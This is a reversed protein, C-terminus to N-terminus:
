LPIEAKAYAARVEADLQELSRGGLLVDLHRTCLDDASEVAFGQPLEPKTPPTLNSPYRIVGNGLDQVGPQKKFADIEAQYKTVAAEYQPGIVAWTKRDEHIADFYRKFRTAKGDGDFHMFYFVLAHSSFYRNALDRMLTTQSGPMQQAISKKASPTTISNTFAWLQSAGIWNTQVTHTVLNGHRHEKGARRRMQKFAEVANSVMYRGSNYPLHATYEATGEAMWIPMFRLYEQMMQHTVEHTITDNNIAGSLYYTNGRSAVGIEEFPIRFIYDQLSYYAASWPPAGATLYDQRTRFLEAHFYPGNQPWPTIGWPLKSVLEHTSEFARCVETMAATGLKVPSKFEFHQSRYICPTTNEQVVQIRMSMLPESIASPMYRKDAPARGNDPAIPPRAAPPRSFQAFASASLM